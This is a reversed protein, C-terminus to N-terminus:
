VQVFQQSETITYEDATMNSGDPVIVCFPFPLDLMFSPADSGLAQPQRFAPILMPADIDSVAFMPMQDPRWAWVRGAQLFAIRGNELKHVRRVKIAHTNIEKFMDRAKDALIHNPMGGFEDYIIWRSKFSKAWDIMYNVYNHGDYDSLIQIQVLPDYQKAIEVTRDLSQLDVILIRDVCRRFQRIMRSINAEQNRVKLLATIM